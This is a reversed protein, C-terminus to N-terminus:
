KQVIGLLNLTYTFHTCVAWKFNYKYHSKLRDKMHFSTRFVIVHRWCRGLIKFFWITGLRNLSRHHLHIYNQLVTHVTTQIVCNLM